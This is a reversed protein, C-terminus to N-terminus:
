FGPVLRGAFVAAFWRGFGLVILLSPAYEWPSFDRIGLNGLLLLVGVAVVILGVLVRSSGGISM